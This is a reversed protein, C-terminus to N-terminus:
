AADSQDLVAMDEVLRRIRASEQPPWCAIHHAQLRERRERAWRAAFERSVTESQVLRLLVQLEDFTLRLEMACM